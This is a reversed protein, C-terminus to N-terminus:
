LTSPQSSTRWGTGKARWVAAEAAALVREADPSLVLQVGPKTGDNLAFGAEWPRVRDLDDWVLGIRAITAEDDRGDAQLANARKRLMITAHPQYPTGRLREAIAGFAEIAKADGDILM